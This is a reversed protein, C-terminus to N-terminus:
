CRSRCQSPSHRNAGNSSCRNQWLSQVYNAMFQATNPEAGDVLLQLTRGAATAVKASFDAPYDSPASGGAGASADTRGPFGNAAGFLPNASLTQALTSAASGSDERLLGLRLHNSFNVVMM